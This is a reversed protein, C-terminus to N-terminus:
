KEWSDSSDGEFKLYGAPRITVIEVTLLTYTGTQAKSSFAPSLNISELVPSNRRRERAHELEFCRPFYLVLFGATDVALLQVAFPTETLKGWSGLFHAAACYSSLATEGNGAVGQSITHSGLGERHVKGMHWTAGASNWSCQM